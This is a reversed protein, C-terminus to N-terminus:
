SDVTYRKAIHSLSFNVTTSAAFSAVSVTGTPALFQAGAGFAVPQDGTNKM